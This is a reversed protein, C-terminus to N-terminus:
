SNNNNKKLYNKNNFLDESNTKISYLKKIAKM